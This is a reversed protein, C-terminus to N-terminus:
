RDLRVIEPPIDLDHVVTPGDSLAAGFAAAASRLEAVHLALKRLDALMRGEEAECRRLEALVQDAISSRIGALSVAM